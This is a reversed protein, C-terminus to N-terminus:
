TMSFLGIMCSNYNAPIFSYVPLSLALSTFHPDANLSLQTVENHFTYDDVQISCDSNDEAM